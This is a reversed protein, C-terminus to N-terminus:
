NIITYNEKDYELRLSFMIEDRLMYMIFIRRKETICVCTQYIHHNVYFVVM